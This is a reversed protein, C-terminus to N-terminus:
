LGLNIVARTNSTITLPQSFRYTESGLKQPLGNIEIFQFGKDYNEKFEKAFNPSQSVEDAWVPAVYFPDKASVTEYISISLSILATHFIVNQNDKLWDSSPYDVSDVTIQKVGFPQISGLERLVNRILYSYDRIIEEGPSIFVEVTEETGEFSGLESKNYPSYFKKGFVDLVNEWNDIEKKSYTVEYPVNFRSDRYYIQVVFRLTGESFFSFESPRGLTYSSFSASHSPSSSSPSSSLSNYGTHMPYVAITLGPEVFELGGFTRYKDVFVQQPTQNQRLVPYFVPPNKVAPHLKIGGILGLIIQRDTAGRTLRSM